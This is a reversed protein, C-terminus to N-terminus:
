GAVSNPTAPVPRLGPRLARALRRRRTGALSYIQKTAEVIIVGSFAPLLLLGAREWAAASRRLFARDFPPFYLAHAWGEPNFMADRLHRTLQMRSYPTGHGFPTSDFRAWMGRRHPVVALLRGDPKLVRWTERLLADIGDTMELGHVILVRDLVNDDLPLDDEMVLAVQSRGEEPWHLVGQRAPMMGFVAMAEDRWGGLYPTAYGLGAVRLGSLNSWRARVRHAILRRTTQGLPSEYFEKLDIVDM